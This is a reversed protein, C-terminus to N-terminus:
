YTGIDNVFVYSTNHIWIFWVIFVDYTSPYVFLIYELLYFYCAPFFGSIARSGSCIKRLIKGRSGLIMGRFGLIKGRSGLNRVRSGWIRGRPALKETLNWFWDAFHWTPQSGPEWTGPKKKGAQKMCIYMYRNDCLSPSRQCNIWM